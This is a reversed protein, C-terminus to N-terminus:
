APWCYGDVTVLLLPLACFRELFEGLAFHLDNYRCIHSGPPEIDLSNAMNNIIIKRIITHLIPHVADSSSSPSSTHICAYCIHTDYKYAPM